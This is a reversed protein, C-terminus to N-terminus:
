QKSSHVACAVNSPLAHHICSDVANPCSYHGRCCPMTYTQINVNWMNHFFGVSESGLESGTTRIPGQLKMDVAVRSDLLDFYDLSGMIQASRDIFSDISVDRDNSCTVENAAMSMPLLYHMSVLQCAGYLSISVDSRLGGSHILRALIITCHLDSAKSNAYTKEYGIAQYWVWQYWYGLGSSGTVTCPRVYKDTRPDEETQWGDSANNQGMGGRKRRQVDRGFWQVTSWQIFLIGCTWNM